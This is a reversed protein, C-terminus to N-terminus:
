KWQNKRNSKWCNMDNSGRQRKNCGKGPSCMPCPSYLKTFAKKYVSSNDTSELKEKNKGM